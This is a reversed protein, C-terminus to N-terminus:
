SSKSVSVWALFPAAARKARNVDRFHWSAGSTNRRESGTLMLVALKEIANGFGM